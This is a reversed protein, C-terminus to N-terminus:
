RYKRRRPWKRWPGPGPLCIRADNPEGDQHFGDNKDPIPYPVYGKRYLIETAGVATKLEYGAREMIGGPMHNKEFGPLDGRGQRKLNAKQWASVILLHHLRRDYRTYNGGAPGRPIM